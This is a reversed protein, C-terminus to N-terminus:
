TLIFGMLNRIKGSNAKSVERSSRLNRTEENWHDLHLARLYEVLGGFFRCDSNSVIEECYDSETDFVQYKARLFDPLHTEGLEVPFVADKERLRDAYDLIKDTDIAINATRSPIELLAKASERDGSHFLSEAQQLIEIFKFEDQPWLDSNLQLSLKPAWPDSFMEEVPISM